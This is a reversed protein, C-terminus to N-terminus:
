GDTSCGPRRTPEALISLVSGLFEARRFPKTLYRSVNPIQGRGQPRDSVLLIRISPAVAHLRNLFSSTEEQPHGGEDVVALRVRAETRQLLGLASEADPSDLVNLGLKKLLYSILKVGEDDRGVLLATDDQIRAPM